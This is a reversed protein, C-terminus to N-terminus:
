EHRSAAGAAPATRMLVNVLCHLCGFHRYVSTCDVPRVAYGLSVWVARAAANLPEVGRYFPLYVCRRSGRQDILVNAYTLYTRGDRAPVVPLRLVRYGAVACQGAVADFLHQTEPTFDAGGPLDMFGDAAAAADDTAAAPVYKRGLSPDGVLVTRQGVAVMFMGAHHDPAEDLLIVRRKLDAALIQLLEGRSGVTHQINRPLIRSVVFVNEADALFDGGDFYLESRRARLSSPLAAALDNGVREDGARAPWIAEAAEGRPSLLTTLAGGSAPALAVWRDRSWTTLPHHVVLPTLHCGLPGLVGCLEDFAAQSPCVVHVTVDSELATLFDRYVPVVVNMASPEFHIVLESLQGDCESLIPGSPPPTRSGGGGGGGGSISLVAAGLLLGLAAGVGTQWRWM